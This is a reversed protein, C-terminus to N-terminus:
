GIFRWVDGIHRTFDEQCFQHSAPQRTMKYVEQVQHYKQLFWLYAVALDEGLQPDILGMHSFYAIRDVTKTPLDDAQLPVASLTLLDMKRQVARIPGSKFGFVHKEEDYFQLDESLSWCVGANDGGERMVKRHHTLQKRVVGKVSKGLHSETFEDLVRQRALIWIADDGIILQSNLVFDPYVLRRDGYVYSFPTNSDLCFYGPLGDYAYEIDDAPLYSGCYERFSQRLEVGYDRGSILVLETKSQAHREMKGDSGVTIIAVDDPMGAGFERLGERLMKQHNENTVALLGFYEWPEFEEYCLSEQESAPLKSM